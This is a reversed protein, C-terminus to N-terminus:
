AWRLIFLTADERRDFWFTSGTWTYHREGFQTKCWEHVINWFELSQNFKAPYYGADQFRRHWDIDINYKQERDYQSWADVFDKVPDKM